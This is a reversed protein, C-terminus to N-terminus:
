LRSPDLVTVTGPLTGMPPPSQALRALWQQGWAPLWQRTWAVLRSM